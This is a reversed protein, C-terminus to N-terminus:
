RRSSSPSFRVSTPSQSSPTHSSRFSGTLFAPCPLWSLVKGSSDTAKQRQAIQFSNSASLAGLRPTIAKM